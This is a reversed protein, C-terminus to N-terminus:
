GGAQGVLIIALTLSGVKVSLTWDKEGEKAVAPFSAGAPTELSFVVPHATGSKRSMDVLTAFDPTAAPDADSAIPTLLAFDRQPAVGQHAGDVQSLSYRMTYLGAKIPQGRRDAGQAPFSIVGLLTGQAIPLVIAEDSSKPGTPISKRFWVECWPGKPGVVRNRQPDIVSAYAAPVAPAASSSELKYDQAFCERVLGPLVVFGPLAFLPLFALRTMMAPSDLLGPSIYLAINISRSVPNSGAVDVKALDCEVLQTVGARATFDWKGVSVIGIDFTIPIDCL